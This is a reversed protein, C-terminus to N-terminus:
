EEKKAPIGKVVTDSEVNKTVVAGAGITVNDGIIINPLITAGAGIHTDKGVTVNGCLTANPSIHVFDEITCEHDISASTNIIVHDGIKSSSNIVVGNMVVTGKGITARKSIIAQKSVVKGFTCQYRELKEAIKKRIQNNGISVIVEVSEAKYENVEYHFINKIIKNDDFIGEIQINHDELLEIIVKAHGSAGYLYM